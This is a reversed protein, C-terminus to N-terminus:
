KRRIYAIYADFLVDRPNEDFIESLTHQCWARIEAEPVGRSIALEISTESLAYRLYSNRTMPVAVELEEYDYLELGYHSYELERIALAYGPPSPYRQKFAKYWDELRRDNRLRKGESFDYIALVGSTTLVRVAEPFFRDLDAYNLSGAATMLDFSMATFPLQEAKAVVFHAQKSVVARHALMTAIPEIGVAMEALPELAATSLGAGCGIDLVRRLRTTLQLRERMKAIIHPHVAPRHYAYGTALRTSQYIDSAAAM